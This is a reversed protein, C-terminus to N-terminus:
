KVKALDLMVKATLVGKNSFTPVKSLSVNKDNFEEEAQAQLQAQIDVITVRNNILGAKMAKLCMIKLENDSM